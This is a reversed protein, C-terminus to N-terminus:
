HAMAMQAMMAEVMEATPGYISPQPVGLHRYTTSLQGRHHIIDQLFEWCREGLKMTDIPHGFVFMTIDKDNWDEDSTNNILQVLCASNTEFSRIAEDISDYKASVRHNLVGDELAEVLDEVHSVFHDTLQKVSRSKPQYCYNLVDGEPLARLARVTIPQEKQWLHIFFEKNTM